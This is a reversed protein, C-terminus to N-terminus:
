EVSVGSAIRKRGDFVVSMPPSDTKARRHQPQDILDERSEAVSRSATTLSSAATPKPQSSPDIESLAKSVGLIRSQDQRGAGDASRERRSAAMGIEVRFGQDDPQFRDHREDREDDSTDMTELMTSEERDISSFPRTGPTESSLSQGLVRGMRRSLSHDRDPRLGLGESPGGSFSSAVWDAEDLQKKGKGRRRVDKEYGCEGVSDRKVCPGCPVNGDCKLKRKRCPYCSIPLRKGSKTEPSLKSEQDYEYASDYPYMSPGSPGGYQTAWIDNTFTGSGLSPRRGSSSDLGSRSSQRDLDAEALSRNPDEPRWFIPRSDSSIYSNAALSYHSVYM